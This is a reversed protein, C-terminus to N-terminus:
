LQNKNEDKIVVPILNIKCKWSLKFVKTISYKM